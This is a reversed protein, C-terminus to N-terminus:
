KMPRGVARPTSNRWTGSSAADGTMGGVITGDAQFTIHAGFMGTLKTGVVTARFSDEDLTQAALPASLALGLALGWFPGRITHLCRPTPFM